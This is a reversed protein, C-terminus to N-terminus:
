CRGKGGTRMGCGGAEQPLVLEAFQSGQELAAEPELLNQWCQHPAYVMALAPMRMYKPCACAEEDGQNCPPVAEGRPQRATGELPLDEQENCRGGMMHEHLQPAEEPQNMVAREGGVLEGGLMRRLFEDNARGQSVHRNNEMYM